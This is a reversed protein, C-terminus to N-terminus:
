RCPFATDADIKETTGYSRIWHAFGHGCRFLMKFGSGAIRRGEELGDAAMEKTGHQGIPDIGYEFRWIRRTGATIVPVALRSQICARVHFPRDNGDRAVHTLVATRAHDNGQQYLLREHDVLVVSLGAAPEAYVWAM